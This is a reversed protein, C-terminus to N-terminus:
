TFSFKKLHLSNGLNQLSAFHAKQGPRPFIRLPPPSVKSPPPPSIGRLLYPTDPYRIGAGKISRNENPKRLEFFAM